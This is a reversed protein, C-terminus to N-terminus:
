QRMQRPPHTPFALASKKPPPLLRQGCLDSLFDASFALCILRSNEKREERIKKAIEATLLM